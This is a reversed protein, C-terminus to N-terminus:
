HSSALAMGVLLEDNGPAAMFSLGVPLNAAKGLPLSVQPTGALGAICTLGMIKGRLAWMTSRREGRRPAPFPTTPLVIAGDGACLKHVRARVRDRLVSAAAIAAEDARTGRLLNDAVEFSFRPNCADIWDGFTKWAERGQLIGQQRAWEELGEAALRCHEIKAKGGWTRQLAEQIAQATAAEALEFADDAVILRSPKTEGIARGLLVASVSAFTKADSAMWGITDFSPAQPLVGAFPIRGHTTRMGYLGCFSSPVRVSGGTDTGLAFDVLGAATASASGSSSGGPVRDLARPNVPTGYFANEGWIGRSIEDTVTKGVMTAGAAVLHEIVPATATAREHTDRWDPNGAGTRFGKVDFLDKAAFRLGALPGTKAGELYADSDRCFANYTDARAIMKADM